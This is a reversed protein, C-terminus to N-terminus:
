RNFIYFFLSLYAFIGFIMVITLGCATFNFNNTNKICALIIGCLCIILSSWFVIGARSINKM